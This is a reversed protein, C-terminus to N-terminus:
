YIKHLPVGGGRDLGDSGKGRNGNEKGDEWSEEWARRKGQERRIAMGHENSGKNGERAGKNGQERAGKDRRGQEKGLSM